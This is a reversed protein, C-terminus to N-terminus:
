DPMRRTSKFIKVRAGKKCQKFVEIQCGPHVRRASKSIKLGAGIKCELIDEIWCGKV